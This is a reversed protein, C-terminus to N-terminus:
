RPEAERIATKAEAALAKEDRWQCIAPYFYWAIGSFVALTGLALLAIVLLVAIERQSEAKKKQEEAYKKAEQASKSEQVALQRKKRAEKEAKQARARQKEVKNKEERIEEAAAEAKKKQEEAIKKSEQASKKEKEALQRKKEAEKEAEEVKRKEERIKEAAAEAIKKQEEAIKKSEKEAAAEAENKQQDALVVLRKGALKAWMKQELLKSLFSSDGSERVRETLAFTFGLKALCAAGAEPLLQAAELLEVTQFNRFYYKMSISTNQRETMTKCVTKAWAPSELHHLSQIWKSRDAKLLLVWAPSAALAKIVSNRGDAIVEQFLKIGKSPDKELLPVWAPSAAIATRVNGDPDEILQHFLETGSLGKQPIKELLPVWAPSAAIAKILDCHDVEEGGHHSYGYDRDDKSEILGQFLEAGESPYKELLPVWAASAAIACSKAREIPMRGREDGKGEYGMLRDFLEPGKSPNKELVLVWAPSRMSAVQLGTDSTEFSFGVLEELLETGKSTNNELLPVWAPSAASALRVDSDNSEILEQFLETGKSLNKELFPVWAPSYASARKVVLHKEGMLKQFLHIGRAPDSQMLDRWVPSGAAAQRMDVDGEEVERQLEGFDFDSADDVNPGEVKKIEEVDKKGKSRSANHVSPGSRVHVELSSFDHELETLLDDLAGLMRGNDRIAGAGSIAGLLIGLCGISM